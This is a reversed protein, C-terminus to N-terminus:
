HIWIRLRISLILGLVPLLICYSFNISKGVLRERDLRSLIYVIVEQLGLHIYQDSVLPSFLMSHLRTRQFSLVQVALEVQMRNLPHALMVVVAVAVALIQKDLLEQLLYVVLEVEVMVVPLLHSQQLMEEEEAEEPTIHQQEPYLVKCVLVVALIKHELLVQVVAVVVVITVLVVVRQDAPMVKDWHEQHLLQHSVVLLVVAAEVLLQLLEALVM